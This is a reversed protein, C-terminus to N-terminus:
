DAWWFRGKLFREKIQRGSGDKLRGVLVQRKFGDKLKSIL